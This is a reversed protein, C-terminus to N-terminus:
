TRFNLINSMLIDVNEKSMNEIDKTDSKIFELLDVRKSKEEYDSLKQEFIIPEKPKQYSNTNLVVDVNSDIKKDVTSNIEEITNNKEM